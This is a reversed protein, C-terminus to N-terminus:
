ANCESIKYVASGIIDGVVEVVRTGAVLLSGFSVGNDIFLSMLSVFLAPIYSKM